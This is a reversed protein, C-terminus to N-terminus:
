PRIGDTLRGNISVAVRRHAERPLMLTIAHDLEAFYSQAKVDLAVILIRGERRPAFGLHYDFNMWGFGHVDVQLRATQAGDYRIDVSEPNANIRIDIAEVAPDMEFTYDKTNHYPRRTFFGGLIILAVIVAATSIWIKRRRPMPSGATQQDNGSVLHGHVITATMVVIGLSWITDSLFHAGQVMRGASLLSGLAMGTVVGSFALVKNQRWFGAMALFVFGMTCHGCPFSAGKGPPGPPFIARYDWKGGLEITQSPRPRGWYQKLVANVLLGAAIIVTLVVLLCPKRWAKLAPAYAGALYVALAGLTLTLGPITGYTYLWVWIPAKSMYWGKGARYFQASLRRDVDLLELLMTVLVLAAMQLAAFYWGRRKLARRRLLLGSVPQATESQRCTVMLKV